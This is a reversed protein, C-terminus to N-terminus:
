APLITLRTPSYASGIPGAGAYIAAGSAPKNTKWVVRFEYTTGGTVAYNTQVFAANPSFTGAFGGSEKWAIPSSWTTGGDTSVEIGVDQNYGANATWLDAGASVLVNGSSAPTFGTVDLNVSDVPQWAVGNSNALRYQQPSVATAWDVHSVGQVDYATLSTPSFAANVPGAGAAITAGSANVNTKWFLEVVYSTGETLHAMTQVFAANPSFTGAFGGSEKWALLQWTSGGDSSMRIAIDQNYGANFTWLDANASLVVDETVSPNLTLKLKTPDIATWTAGDSNPLTYQQTSVASTDANANTLVQANLRTPSFPSGSGAGVAISAGLAPRNTKWVIFFSYTNGSTVHYVAQVFAANPSFTGASGGSEKWASVTQPGGNVSVAIGIDQNYGATSTWLDANASLILDGSSVPSLSLSLNSEDLRQWAVGDSNPLVYQTSSAATTRIAPAGGASPTTSYSAVAASSGVNNGAAVTVYYPKGNTLGAITAPSSMASTTSVVSRNSDYAVITYGSIPSSGQNAPATWTVTVHGPANSVAVVNTPADPARPTTNVSVSSTATLGSTLTDIVNVSQSGSTRLTVVFTHSGADAPVFTYDAPLTAQPDSSTFDVTGTYGSAVNGHSDSATVTVNFAYGATGFGPAALSLHAAAGSAVQLTASGSLGNGSDTATLTQQGATVMTVSFTHAGSDGGVFTYDAPVTAQPDTSTFHVTGAYGTAVNSEADYATVAASFAQGTAASAPASVTIRTATGPSVAIPSTATISPTAVDTATVTQSGATDLTLSFSHMGTDAATFAYDAPLVAQVDSSTFHVTGRYGTAVNGYADSASLAVTIAHGATSSAPATSGLITAPGAGVQLSASAQLHNPVDTATVGQTGATELTVNFTHSGCDATSTLGDCTSDSTFAYDAPLLAQADTSTFHVTGAYGIAINGFPDYATVSLSTPAGATTASSSPSFALSSASGSTVVAASGTISSTTTDTATVSQPAHRPTNLTASFTHTGQDGPVFMYDAPLSAALDSSTFHSTGTYGVVRNGFADTVGVRFSFASGASVHQPATLVYASAAGPSVAITAMATMASSVTDTVTISRSGASALTATFMHQGSDGGTFTYDAPLTAANDSSTFTVEGRYTTAKNGSSDEAEVTISFPTGATATSPPGVLLLQAAPGATVTAPATGTITGTTADTATVTWSGATHFTVSFAHTGCDLNGPGAVGCDGTTFTYNSPLVAHTDTSSFTVTGTYDPATRNSSDHAVVTVHVPSGAVATSPVVTVTYGGGAAVLGASPVATSTGTISSTVTDTATITYSGTQNLTVTFVHVGDDGATFAYDSPLTALVDTSTLHVTGRYATSTKGTGGAGDVASVRITLAQGASAAVPVDMRMSQAPGGASVTTTGNGSISSTATDTAQITQSGTADLTASFNKVGADGATFAYSTPSFIATSDSPSSIAATGTYGTAVDGYADEATVTLTFAAKFSVTGPLTLVFHSAAAPHVTTSGTGAISPISTDTATLSQSGIVDYTVSFTHIGADGSTFSYDAPLTATGDSSSTFHVTGRYGVATNANVDTATITACPFAVHTTATSTACGPASTFSITLSTAAGSVIIGNVTTIASNAVDTVTVTQNGLVNLTFANTFTHTGKDSASFTYNPPLTATHDSSSFTVTGTYATEINGLSDQASVTTTFPGGAAVNAPETFALEAYVGPSVTYTLSGTITATVTDTATITQSGSTDLKLGTFTHSGCDASPSAGSCSSNSTFTYDSPVMTSRNPDTSTFHVTGAYNPDVEGGSTVAIVSLSFPSGATVSTAGSLVLRTTAAQAHLAGGFMGSLAAPIALLALLQRKRRDRVHPVLSAFPTLIM